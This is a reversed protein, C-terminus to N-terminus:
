QHMLEWAENIIKHVYKKAEKLSNNLEIKNPNEGCSKSHKLQYKCYRCSHSPDNQKLAEKKAHICYVEDEM